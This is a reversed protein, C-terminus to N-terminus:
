PVYQPRPDEVIFGAATRDRIVAPTETARPTEATPLVSETSTGRVKGPTTSTSGTATTLTDAALTTSATSSSGTALTSTGASLASATSSAEAGIVTVVTGTSATANASSASLAAAIALTNKLDKVQEADQGGAEAEAVIGDQDAKLDVLATVIGGADPEQAVAQVNEVAVKTQAALETLAATKLKPKSTALARRVDGARKNAFKVQLM